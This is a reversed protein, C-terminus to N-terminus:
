GSATLATETVDLKADRVILGLAGDSDESRFGRVAHYGVATTMTEGGAVEMRLPCSKVYHGAYIGVANWIVDASSYLSVDGAYEGLEGPSIWVASSALQPRQREAASKVLTM